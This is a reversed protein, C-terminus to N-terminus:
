AARADGVGRCASPRQATEFSLGDFHTLAGLTLDYLQDLSYKCNCHTGFADYNMNRRGLMHCLGSKDATLM